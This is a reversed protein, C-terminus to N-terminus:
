GLITVAQTLLEARQLIDMKNWMDLLKVLMKDEGQEPAEFDRSDDLLWEVDVDFYDAIAKVTEPRPLSGRTKWTSVTARTVPTEINKGIASVSVGKRRCLALLKQYFTM